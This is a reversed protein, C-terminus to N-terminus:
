DFRWEIGFGFMLFFFSVLNWGDRDDPSEYGIAFPIAFVNTLGMILRMKPIM